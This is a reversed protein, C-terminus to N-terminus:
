QTNESVIVVSTSTIFGNSVLNDDTTVANIKVRRIYIVACQCPKGCAATVGDDPVALVVGVGVERGPSRIREPNGAAVALDM